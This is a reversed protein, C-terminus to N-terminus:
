TLEGHTVPEGGCHRRSASCQPYPQARCDRRRHIPVDWFSRRVERWVDARCLGIDHLARDSLESLKRRETRVQWAVQLWHMLSSAQNILRGMVVSLVPAAIVGETAQAARWEERSLIKRHM